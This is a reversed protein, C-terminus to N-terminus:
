VFVCLSFARPRAESGPQAAAAQYKTYIKYINTYIKYIKSIGWLRFGVIVVWRESWMYRDGINPSLYRFGRKSNQRM